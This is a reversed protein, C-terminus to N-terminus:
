RSTHHASQHKKNLGPPGSHCHNTDGYGWGPKCQQSITTTTTEPLTTTSSVTTTTDASTTTTEPLTTTPEAETSTTTSEPTSTTDGVSTSTVDAPDDAANLHTRGVSSGARPGSGAWAAGVSLLGVLAIASAVTLARRRGLM